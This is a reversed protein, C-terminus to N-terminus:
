NYWKRAGDGGGLSAAGWSKRGARDGHSCSPPGRGSSQGAPVARPGQDLTRPRWEGTVVSSGRLGPSSM